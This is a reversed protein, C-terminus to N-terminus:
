EDWRSQEDVFRERALLSLQDAQQPLQSLKGLSVMGFRGNRPLSRFIRYETGNSLLGVEAQTAFMYDRIQSVYSGLPENGSKAEVIIGVNFDRRLTGLGTCLAYDARGEGTEHELRFEPLEPHWGLYELLPTLLKVKIEEENMRRPKNDELVDDAWETFQEITQRGIVPSVDEFAGELMEVDREDPPSRKTISTAVMRPEIVTSNENKFEPHLSGTISVWDQEEVANVLDDAVRVDITLPDPNGLEISVRDTLLIDRRGQFQSRDALLQYEVSRKGCGSCELPERRTVSPQRVVTTESCDLCEFIGVTPHLESAGVEDVRGSLSILGGIQRAEISPIDASEPSSVLRMTADPLMPADFVSLRRIAQNAHSRHEVYNQQYDIALREDFESLPEYEVDFISRSPYSDEFRRLKDECSTTLFERMRPVFEEGDLSVGHTM